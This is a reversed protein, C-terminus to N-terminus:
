PLLIRHDHLEHDPSRKGVLHIFGARREVRRIPQEGADAIGNGLQMSTEIRRKDMAIDLGRVEHHFPVRNQHDIKADGAGVVLIGHAVGAMEARAGIRRGFLEAVPLGIHAAIHIREAHQQEVQQALLRGNQRRNLLAQAGM